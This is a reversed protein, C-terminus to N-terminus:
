TLILNGDVLPTHIKVTVNRTAMENGITHQLSGHRPNRLAQRTNCEKLGVPM